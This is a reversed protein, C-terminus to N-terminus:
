EYTREERALFIGGPIGLTFAICVFLLTPLLTIM